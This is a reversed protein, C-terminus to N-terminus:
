FQGAGTVSVRLFTIDADRADAIAKKAMARRVQRYGEVDPIPVSPPLYQLLLDFKDAGLEGARAGCCL